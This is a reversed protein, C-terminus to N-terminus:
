QTVQAHVLKAGRDRVGVAFDFIEIATEEPSAVFRRCKKWHKLFCNVICLSIEGAVLMGATGVFKGAPISSLALGVEM